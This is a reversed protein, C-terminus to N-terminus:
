NAAKQHLKPVTASAMGPHNFCYVYRGGFGYRIGEANVPYLDPYKQYLWAPPQSTPTGMLTQIGNKALLEVVRDLWAFDLQAEAPEIRAWAFEAMRVINFGADRMMKVDTEWRSEDWADPYYDAGFFIKPSHYLAGGRFM